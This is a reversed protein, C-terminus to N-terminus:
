LGCARFRCVITESLNKWRWYACQLGIVSLEIRCVDEGFSNIDNIGRSLIGETAGFPVSSRIVDEGGRRGM